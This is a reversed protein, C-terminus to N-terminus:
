KNPQIVCEALNEDSIIRGKKYDGEDFWANVDLGMETTGAGTLEVVIEL